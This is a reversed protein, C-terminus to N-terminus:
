SGVRAPFVQDLNASFGTLTPSTLRDERGYNDVEHLEVEPGAMVWIRQGDPDVVWSERVGHQAYLDLKTRWDRSATSPSLIEIVLDPAGKINADHIIHERQNSVFLVDPQVVNTDSLIVDLPASLVEGLGMPVVFSNLMLFLRRFVRQHTTAPSPAMVLEGNLLEWREDDPTNRYDEYTLKTKPKADVM